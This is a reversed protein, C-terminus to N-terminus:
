PLLLEAWRQYLDRRAALHEARNYAAEVKDDPVHALAQDILDKDGRRQENLITSFSARWGHPVHRGEYGARVYLDRIANAGIPFIPSHADYGNERARARMQRLIEAAQTSLPVVHANAEDAKRAKTLKMHAAPIRWVPTPGDLQEIEGWRALRLAGIRAATLALFRSARKVTAGADVLEAAALLERLQEVELLAAHKQVANAPALEAALLAAPNSSCLKRVIAYAFIADLRQRLRRATEKAGRREIAQVLELVTSAGIAGIPTSGIASFVNNELSALVDAAHTESWRERRDAHWARAITEFIEASSSAGADNAPDRGAALKARAVDARDRADGLQVDPWLGFCLLKEKRDRQYRFRWSKAGTPTVFLFLGREDYIKYARSQPRAAKVAANTLM